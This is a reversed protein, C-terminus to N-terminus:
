NPIQERRDWDDESPCNLFPFKNKSFGPLTLSNFYDNIENHYIEVTRKKFNVLWLRCQNRSFEVIESHQKVNIKKESHTNKDNRRGVEFRVTM